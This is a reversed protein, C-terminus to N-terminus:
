IKRNYMFFFYWFLISNLFNTGNQFPHIDSIMNLVHTPRVHGFVYFIFDYWIQNEFTEVPRSCLLDAFFSAYFPRFVKAKQFYFRYKIQMEQCIILFLIQPSQRIFHGHGPKEPLKLLVTDSIKRQEATWLLGLPCVSRLHKHTTDLNSQQQMYLVHM